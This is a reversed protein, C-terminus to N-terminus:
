IHKWSDKRVIDGINARSVKFMKGINAYSYKGTSYLNRIEIVQKKTLKSMGHREGKNHTGHINRDHVNETRTGWSLNSLRNDRKNGNLHRTEMGDPRPGCFALMVLRHITPTSIGDENYIGVANYRYNGSYFPKLILPTKRRGWRGNNWSRVRGMNSVEYLPYDPIEKWIEM